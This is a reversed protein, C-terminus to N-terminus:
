QYSQISVPKSFLNANSPIVYLVGVKYGSSIVFVEFRSFQLDVETYFLRHMISLLEPFSTVTIKYRKVAKWVINISLVNYLKWAKWVRVFWTSVHSRHKDVARFRETIM